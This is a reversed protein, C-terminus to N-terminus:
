IKSLENMLKTKDAKSMNNISFLMRTHYDKVSLIQGKEPKRFLHLESAYRVGKQFKDYLEDLGDDETGAIELGELADEVPALIKSIDQMASNLEEMNSKTDGGLMLNEVVEKLEDVISDDIGSDYQMIDFALHTVDKFTKLHTSREVFERETDNRLEIKSFSRMKTEINFRNGFSRQNLVDWDTSKFFGYDFLENYAEVYVTQLGKFKNVMLSDVRADECVNLYYGAATGYKKLYSHWGAVPTFKAHSVEHAHLFKKVCESLNEHWTPIVVTRSDLDFYATKVAEISRSINEEALLKTFQDYFRNDYLVELDIM